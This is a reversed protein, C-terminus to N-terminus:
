SEPLGSMEDPHRSFDKATHPSTVLYRVAPAPLGGLVLLLRPRTEM